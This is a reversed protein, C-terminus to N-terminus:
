KLRALEAAAANIQEVLEATRQKRWGTLLLEAAETTDMGSLDVAGDRRIIDGHAKTPASAALRELEEGVIPRPGGM